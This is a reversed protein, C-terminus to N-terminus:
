VIPVGDEEMDHKLIEIIEAWGTGTRRARRVDEEVNAQMIESDFGRIYQLVEPPLDEDLARQRVHTEPMGSEKRRIRTLSDMLEDNQERLRDREDMVLKFATRSVWWVETLRQIKKRSM